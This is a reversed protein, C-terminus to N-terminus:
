EGLIKLAEEYEEDSPMDTCKGCPPNIHCSCCRDEWYLCLDLVEEAEEITM